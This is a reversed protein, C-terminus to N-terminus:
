KQLCMYYGKEKKMMAAATHCQGATHFEGIPRWDNQCHMFQGGCGVITWVVLIFTNM